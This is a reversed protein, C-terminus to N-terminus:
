FADAPEAADEDAAAGPEEDLELAAIARRKGIDTRGDYHLRLTSESNGLIDAVTRYSEGADLMATAAFHRLHQLTVKSTGRAAAWRNSLADPRMPVTGEFLAPFVYDNPRPDQRLLATRREQQREFAAAAGATLPVDRWDARKTPKRLIGVGKGGDTISAAVEVQRGRIDVDCWRLALLEGKRMGTSALITVADGLEADRERVRALLQRVEDATPAFPKSRVTRPRAADKSPNTDVLGRKRALELARTLVTACRRVWDTAFGDRRMAAYLGEIEQWTLRNLRISGFRQGDVIMDAMRRCAGRSTVITSPALEIVGTEIASVYLEFVADVTRARTGGTSLRREHDAVRLRALEVEADKRTGRVQRSVRRRHGTVPDRSIEVDVRWLGERIPFIGGSGRVRRGSPKAARKRAEAREVM